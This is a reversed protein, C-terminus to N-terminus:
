NWIWKQEEASGLTNVKLKESLSHSYITRSICIKYRLWGRTVCMRCINLILTLFLPVHRSVSIIDNDASSYRSNGKIWVEGVAVYMGNTQHWGTHTYIQMQQPPHVLQPHKCCCVVSVFNVRFPLALSSYLPKSSHKSAQLTAPACSVRYGGVWRWGDM